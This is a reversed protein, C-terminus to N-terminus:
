FIGLIKFIDPKNKQESQGHGAQMIDGSNGLFFPLISRRFLNEIKEYWYITLMLHRQM